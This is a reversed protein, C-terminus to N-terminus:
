QNIKKNANKIERKSKQFMNGCELCIYDHYVINKHAYEHMCKRSCFQPEFNPNKKKHFNVDCRMRKFESACNKCKYYLWKNEKNQM